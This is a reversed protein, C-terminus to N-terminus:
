SKSVVRGCVMKLRKALITALIGYLGEVLSISRCDKMDKAGEKKSMLVFLFPLIPVKRSGGKILFSRSFGWM